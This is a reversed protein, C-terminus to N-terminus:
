KRSDQMREELFKKLISVADGADKIASISHSLLQRIKGNKIEKGRANLRKEIVNLYDMSGLSADILLRVAEPPVSEQIAQLTHLELVERLVLMGMELNNRSLLVTAQEAVEMAEAEQQFAVDIKLGDRELVHYAFLVKSKAGVFEQESVAFANTGLFTLFSIVLFIKKMM